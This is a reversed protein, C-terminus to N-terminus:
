TYRYIIEYFQAFKHAFNWNKVTKPLQIEMDRGRYVHCKARHFETAIFYVSTVTFLCKM